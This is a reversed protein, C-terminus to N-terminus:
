KVVLKSTYTRGEQAVKVMYIGKNLNSIDLKVEEAAATQSIVTQGVLNVLEIKAPATNVFQVYVTSNAPNPHISVLGKEFVQINNPPRTVTLTATNNELDTDTEPQGTYTAMFTVTFTGYLNMENMKEATLTDLGFIGYGMATNLKYSSAM